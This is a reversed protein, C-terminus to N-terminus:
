AALGAPHTSGRGAAMEDLGTVRPQSKARKDSARSGKSGKSARSARSAKRSCRGPWSRWREESNERQASSEPQPLCEGLLGGVDLYEVQVRQEITIGSQSPTATGPRQRRFFETLRRSGESEVTAHYRPDDPRLDLNMSSMLRRRLRPLPFEFGRSRSPPGNAIRTRHVPLDPRSHLSLDGTWFVALFPKSCPLTACVVSLHVVIQSLIGVSADNLM